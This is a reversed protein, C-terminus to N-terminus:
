HETQDSLDYMLFQNSTSNYAVLREENASVAMSSFWADDGAAAGLLTLVRRLRFNDKTDIVLVRHSYVEEHKSSRELQIVYLTGAVYCPADLVYRTIMQGDDPDKEYDADVRALTSRLVDFDSLDRRSRLQGNLDYYELVPVSMGVCLLQNNDTLLVHRGSRAHKKEGKSNSLYEGFTESVEGDSGVQALPANAGRGASAYVSGQHVVFADTAQLAAAKIEDLYKGEADFRNIRRNGDDFVCITDDDVYMNGAGFFEGPGRGKRGFRRVLSLENDVLLVQSGEYDAIVYGGPRQALYATLFYSGGITEVASIPRLSQYKIEENNQAARTCCVSVWTLLFLSGVSCLFRGPQEKNLRPFFLCALRHVVLM